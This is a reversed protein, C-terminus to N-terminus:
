PNHFVGPHGMAGDVRARINSIIQYPDPPHRIWQQEVLVEEYPPVHRPPADVAYDLIAVPHNMIHHSVRVFWRMYWRSHTWSENNSVPHGREEQSLVHLAFEMFAM